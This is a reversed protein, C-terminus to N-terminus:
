IDGLIFNDILRVGEIFIATAILTNNIDINQIKKLGKLSIIEVYDIRTSNESEIMKKIGKRIVDSDRISKNIIIKEANKLSRNLIAASKRGEDSLKINRSSLALGDEERVTPLSKVKVKLNLDEVMKKIIILQQADKQGFYAFDPNIINFLKLVITAVGEFHGPRSKGCLVEGLESVNVKTLFNEPYIEKNEPYFLIDVGLSELLIKDKELNRPYVSFDEKPGFQTPNVYISVITTENESISKKILKVHGEHLFGMTPVFGISGNDVIKKLATRLLSINRILNM